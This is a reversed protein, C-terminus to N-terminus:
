RGLDLRTVFLRVGLERADQSQGRDIPSFTQSTELTLQGDAAAAVDAAIPVDLVFTGTVIYRGLEHAGARVTLTSPETFLGPVDGELHLRLDGAPARFQLDARRAMWRWTVSTGAQQEPEHWGRDFVLLADDPTVADFFQLGVPPVDGEDVGEARVQLEAFTQDDVGTGDPLSIWQKVAPEGPEVSWRALVHGDLSAALTVPPQDPRGLHRAGIVVTLPDPGRRLFAPVPARHPGLGLADTVGGIEPTLAWGLGVMWRPSEIIWADVDTPRVMALLRAADAPWRYTALLRRARRDIAALDRRAPNALFWVPARGGNLLHEVVAQVEGARPTPLREFLRGEEVWVLAQRSESWIRRHMGLVTPAASAGPASGLDEFAQFIPAGQRGYAMLVPHGVLLTGALVGGFVGAAVRRPLAAVAVVVLAAVPVVLPLSYRITATEQFTLHFVLYPWFCLLLLALIRSGRVMLRVLGVAAGVMVVPALVPHLWPTLFTRALAERLLAWSPQTALMEVGVFDETGQAALVDLYASWGGSVVVMPVLWLLGGGVAASTVTVADRWRRRVVLEGVCWALLPLTLWLTQTRIGIALGAGCAAWVWIAPLPRDGHERLVRLGQLLGAQVVLAAALGPVDSIPRAATLWFLPSAVALGAAWLAQTPSLGIAIWLRVLALLAVVGAAVSWVALGVAARRDRPWSPFAAGVVIDSVTAVAIYVPYGPPHPRHASLDFSEVGLAFNVSDLDELTRPLALVHLAVFLFVAGGFLRTSSRTV